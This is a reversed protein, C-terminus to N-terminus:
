LFGLLFLEVTVLLFDVLKGILRLYFAYTAELGGWLPSLFRLNVMKEVVVYFSTELKKPGFTQMLRLKLTKTKLRDQSM